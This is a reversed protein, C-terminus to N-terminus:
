NVTPSDIRQWKATLVNASLALFLSM